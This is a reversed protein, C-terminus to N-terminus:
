RFFALSLLSPPFPSYKVDKLVLPLPKLIEKKLFRYSKRLLVRLWSRDSYPLIICIRHKISVSLYILACDSNGVGRFTQDCAEQDSSFELAM